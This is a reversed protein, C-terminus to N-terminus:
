GGHDEAFKNPDYWSSRRGCDTERYNGELLKVVCDVRTVFDFTVFKRRIVWRSLLQCEAEVDDWFTEGFEKLVVRLKAARAM